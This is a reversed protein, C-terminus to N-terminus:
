KRKRYQHGYIECLEECLSDIYPEHSLWYIGDIYPKCAKELASNSESDSVPRLFIAMYVKVSKKGYCRKAFYASAFTERVQEAGFGTKASIITTPYGKKKILCDPIINFGFKKLELKKGTDWVNVGLDALREKFVERLTEEFTGGTMRKKGSAKHEVYDKWRDRFPQSMKKKLYKVLEPDSERVKLSAYHRPYRCELEKEKDKCWRELDCKNGVEFKKCAM